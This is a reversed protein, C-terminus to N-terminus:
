LKSKVENLFYEYSGPKATNGDDQKSEAPVFGKTTTPPAEDSKFFAPLTTKLSELQEKFGVLKDGDINIKGMDLYAKAGQLFKPDALKAEFFGDKILNDIRMEKIKAEHEQMAKKNISQLEAIKSKYGELDTSVGKLEELQKDRESLEGELKKKAEIVENFRTKPIFEKLTEAKESEIAKLVSDTLEESIGLEILQKKDM